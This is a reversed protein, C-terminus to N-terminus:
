VAFVSMIADLARSDLAQKYRKTCQRLRPVDVRVRKAQLLAVM